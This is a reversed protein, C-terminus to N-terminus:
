LLAAVDLLGFSHSGGGATEATALFLPHANRPEDGSAHDMNRGVRLTWAGLYLAINGLDNCRSRTYFGHIGWILTSQVRPALRRVASLLELCRVYVMHIVDRMVKRLNAHFGM